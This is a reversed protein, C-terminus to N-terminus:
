RKVEVVIHVGNSGGKTMEARISRLGREQVLEAAREALVIADRTEMTWYKQPEKDAMM